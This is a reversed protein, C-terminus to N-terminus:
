VIDITGKSQANIKSFDQGVDEALKKAVALMVSNVMSFYAGLMEKEFKSYGIAKQEQVMRSLVLHKGFDQTTFIFNYDGAPAENSFVFLAPRVYLGKSREKVRMTEAEGRHTKLEPIGAAELAQALQDFFEEGRGAAQPIVANWSHVINEDFLLSRDPHSEFFAM